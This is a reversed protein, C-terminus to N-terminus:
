FGLLYFFPICHAQTPRILIKEIKLFEVCGTVVLREALQADSPVLRRARSVYPKPSVPSM